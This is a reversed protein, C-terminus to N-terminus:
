PSCALVGPVTSSLATLLRPGGPVRATGHLCECHCSILVLPLSLFVFRVSLTALTISTPHTPSRGSLTPLLRSRPPGPFRVGLSGRGQKM